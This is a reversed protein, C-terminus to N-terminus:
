RPAKRQREEAAALKQLASELVQRDADNRKELATELQAIRELARDYAKQQQRWLVAVALALLSLVVGFAGFQSFDINTGQAQAIARLYM